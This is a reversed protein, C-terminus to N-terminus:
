RNQKHPHEMANGQGTGFLMEGLLAQTHNSAFVLGPSNGPPVTLSTVRNQSPFSNPCLSCVMGPQEVQERLWSYGHGQKTQQCLCSESPCCEVPQIKGQDFIDMRRNNDPKIAHRLLIQVTFYLISVGSNMGTWIVIDM